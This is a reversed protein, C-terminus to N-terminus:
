QETKNSFGFSNVVICMSFSLVDLSTSFRKMYESRVLYDYWLLEFGGLAFYSRFNRRPTQNFLM